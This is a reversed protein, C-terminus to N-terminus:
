RLVLPAHELTPLVLEGFRRCEEIHPYGSLIVAEM